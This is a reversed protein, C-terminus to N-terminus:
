REKFGKQNEDDKKHWSCQYNVYLFKEQGYWKKYNNYSLM